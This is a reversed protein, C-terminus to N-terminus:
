KMKVRSLEGNQVYVVADGWTGLLMDTQIKKDAVKNVKGNAPVFIALEGDQVITACVGSPLIALNIEPTDTPGQWLTYKGHDADLCFELKQYDGNKDLAVVSAFRYGARANVVTVDDLEPTRLFSVAKDGFPIILYKAGLSNQVGVGQFWETSNRLIQWTQGLALVPNPDPGFSNLEMLNLETLGSDTIAFMRNGSRLVGYTNATLTLDKEMEATIYKFNGQDAILYGRGTRVIEAAPSCPKGNFTIMRLPIKGQLEVLTGNARLAVGCPYVRVVPNGAAPLIIEFVLAGSATTAVRMQRIITTTQTKDLPSPPITREGHEFVKEYWSLLPGPICNFDRVAANLHVDKNFVSVNDRMRRELETMKYGDHRGKYPHIGTFIQFTVIGWSFWDSREDFVNSHFDRISPMIVRAPWRTGIQWSDVDCIRPEPQPDRRMLWNLENADVLVAGNAHAFIPVERMNHVLQISDQDNFGDRQRFATTFVRSLPEGEAFTMYYGIPNHKDDEVIGLPNIIFKHKLKSLIGVKETMKDASMKHPDTFVKVIDHNLRYISAEGGTTVYNTPRLTAKGKGVLTVNLNKNSVAM